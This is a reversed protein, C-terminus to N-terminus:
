LKQDEPWRGGIQEELNGYVNQIRSHGVTANAKPCYLWSVSM